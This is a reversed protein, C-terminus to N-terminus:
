LDEGRRLRDAARWHALYVVLAGAVAVLAPVLDVLAGEREASSSDIATLGPAITRVAAPVAIAAAILLTAMAAFSIAYLYATFTRAGSHGPFGPDDLLRQTRRRHFLLVVGAVVAVAGSNIADRVRQEDGFDPGFDPAFEGPGTYCGPSSPDLCAEADPDVLTEIATSGLEVLAFLLTFVAVFSVLSLYLVYAREGRTDPESRGSLALIALVVVGLIALPAITAYVLEGYFM